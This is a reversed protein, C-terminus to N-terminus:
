NGSLRSRPIWPGQHDTLRSGSRIFTHATGLPPPELEDQQHHHERLSEEQRQRLAKEREERLLRGEEMIRENDRWVQKQKDERETRARKFAQEREELDDVLNKRKADFQAYRAKRAEKLRQKADLAM